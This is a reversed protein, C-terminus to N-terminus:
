FSTSKQEFPIYAHLYVYLWCMGNNRFVMIIQKKIHYRLKTTRYKSFYIQCLFSRFLQSFTTLPLFPLVIYAPFPTCFNYSYYQLWDSINILIKKKSNKWYGFPINFEILFRIEQRISPIVKMEDREWRWWKRFVFSVTKVFGLNCM